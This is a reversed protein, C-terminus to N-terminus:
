DSVDQVDHVFTADWVGRCVGTNCYRSKNFLVVVVVVMISLSTRRFPISFSDVEHISRASVTLLGM